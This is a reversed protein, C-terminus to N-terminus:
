RRRILGLCGLALLTLTAPEPLVELTGTNFIVTAFGSPDLALGETGDGATYGLTLGTTGPAVGTFEITALVSQGTVSSAFALGALGDGDATGVSFWDAGIDVLSWSAIAPTDVTLDIGWGLIPEGAPIDAVIDVQVTGGPSAIQAFDPVFGVTVDASAASVALASVALIACLRTCNRHMIM